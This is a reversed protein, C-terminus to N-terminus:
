HPPGHGVIEEHRNESARGEAGLLGADVGKLGERQAKPGAVEAGKPGERQARSGAM